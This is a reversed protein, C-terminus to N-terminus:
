AFPQPGLLTVFRLLHRPPAEVKLWAASWRRKFRRRRIPVGVVSGAKMERAIAWRALVAVGMGSKAMEAMAETLPLQTVQRPRVGAPSLVERFIKNAELPWNYVLM